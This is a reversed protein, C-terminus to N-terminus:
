CSKIFIKLLKRKLVEGKREMKELVLIIIIKFKTNRNKVREGGKEENNYIPESM